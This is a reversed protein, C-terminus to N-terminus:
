VEKLTEKLRAKVAHTEELGVARFVEKKAHGCICGNDKWGLALAQLVEKIHVPGSRNTDSVRNM